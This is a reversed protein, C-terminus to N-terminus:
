RFQRDKRSSIWFFTKVVSPSFLESNLTCLESLPSLLASNGTQTRHRVPLSDAMEIEPILFQFIVILIKFGADLMWFGALLSRCSLNGLYVREVVGGFHNGM